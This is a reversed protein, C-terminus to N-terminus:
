LTDPSDLWAPLMMSTELYGMRRKKISIELLAYGENELIRLRNLTIPDDASIGAEDAISGRIVKNVRFNSAFFSSQLPSLIMGFLPAAIRERKDVRAANLLPVDPREVTMIINKKLDGHTDVTEIVVLEGPGCLFVEEQLAPILGGQPATVTKGNISRLFSGERVQHMSAPTNPATYIIEANSFTECLAMGLWPRQAKGGKMMAPLAKALRQAPVMFNLGSHQAIGAFVVGVLRGENDIVPGGSNGHTVAADIQIVDGIQLFRRGLASVIGSTVTKELGLPSGIAIVTDGIRPTVRDVISFVYEPEIETKILALDLAKDWGIVRAPVRPSTADGMRIYMRSYGKYKPDVESAIVHYNTILLGSADIFFASGLSRDFMGMGREIRMGMDVLVTAVGKIMDSASDRGQAFERLNSPINRNGGEAHATATQAATFFFSSSGRQGVEVAKELFLFASDFDLPTIEHSRVAALFAGLIDNKELREKADALIFQAELGTNETTIGLSSISRGLSIANEWNEEKIAKNQLELLNETAKEEFKSLQNWDENEENDDNQTVSYAEKFIHILHLAYVPNESVEKEIDDLRISSTSRLQAAPRGDTKNLSECSPFLLIIIIVLLKIMDIKRKM